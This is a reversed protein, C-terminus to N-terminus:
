PQSAALKAAEQHIGKLVTRVFRTKGLLVGAREGAPLFEQRRGPGALHAYRGPRRTRLTKGESVAKTAKAATAKRGSLTVEFFNRRPGVVAYPNRGHHRKNFSRSPIKTKVTFSRTLTGVDKPAALKLVNKVEGGWANLGKRIQLASVNDPLGRLANIAYALDNPDLFAFRSM